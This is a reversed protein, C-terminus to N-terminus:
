SLITQSLSLHDILASGTCTGLLCRDNVDILATGLVNLTQAIVNDM